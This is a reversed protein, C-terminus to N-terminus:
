FGSHSAEIYVDLITSYSKNIYILKERGVNILAKPLGKGLIQSTKSV